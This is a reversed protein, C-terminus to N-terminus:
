AHMRTPLLRLPAVYGSHDRDYGAHRAARVVEADWTIHKKGDGSVIVTIEATENGENVIERWAGAPM